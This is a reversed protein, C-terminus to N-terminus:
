EVIVPTGIKANDFFKRAMKDPMRVCGHSASYGPLYGTHMGIGGDFRLFNWMPAGVYYCGPPVKDKSTDVDDNVVRDTGKEKFVGYLSSRHDRSKQTVKFRGPRTAHGEDGTSIRSVGVLESGKYFYAKQQKRNIRILAEGKKGDGAWYSMDDPLAAGPDTPAREQQPTPGYAALYRSTGSDSVNCASFLISLISVAIAAKM